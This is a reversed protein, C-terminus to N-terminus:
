EGDIATGPKERIERSDCVLLRKRIMVGSCKDAEYYRVLFHFPHGSNKMLRREEGRYRILQQPAKCATLYLLAEKGPDVKLAAARRGRSDHFMM